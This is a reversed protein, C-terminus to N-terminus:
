QDELCADVDVSSRRSRARLFDSTNDLVKTAALEHHVLAETLLRHYYIQVPM